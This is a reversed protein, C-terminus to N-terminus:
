NSPYQFDELELGMFDKISRAPVFRYFISINGAKDNIGSARVGGFSQQDVVAGTCKESHYVNDVANAL